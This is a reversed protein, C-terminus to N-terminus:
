HGYLRYARVRYYYRTAEDLGTNAYVATGAAVAIIEAFTIGDLSREISIGSENTSGNTWALNIRTASYTIATLLSCDGDPPPTSTGSIWPTGAGIGTASGGM